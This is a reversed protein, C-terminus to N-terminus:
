VPKENIIFYSVRSGINGLRLSYISDPGTEQNFGIAKQASSTGSFNIKERKLLVDDCYIETEAYGDPDGTLNKHEFRWEHEVDFLNAVISMLDPILTFVYYSQGGNSTDMQLLYFRLEITPAKGSMRIFFGSGVVEDRLFLKQVEPGSPLFLKMKLQSSAQIAPVLASWRSPKIYLYEYSSTTVFQNAANFTPPQASTTVVSKALGSSQLSQSNKLFNVDLLSLQPPPPLPKENITIYSVRTGVQGLRISFLNDPGTGQNFGIAKQASSTEPLNSKARKLLVDDCYIEQEVYGDPDGTLNKHEFRWEHEVDFLDPVISMINPIVTQAYNSQGNNDGADQMLLFELNTNPSNGYLRIYFSSDVFYYGILFKWLDTGSPIFLKFKVQSSAQIVPVLINWNSPKIYLYVNSVTTVFQNEANFTFSQSSTTVVSKALGL